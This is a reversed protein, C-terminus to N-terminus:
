ALSEAKSRVWGDEILEHTYDEPWIIRKAGRLWITIKGTNRKASDKVAQLFKERVEPKAMAKKTGESIAKSEDESRAQGKNWAPIGIRNQSIRLKSKDSHHKGHMGNAVGKRNIKAIIFDKNPHQSLKDGGNGGPSLNMCLTDTRILDWTVVKAEFLEAETRSEFYNIIERYHNEVGHKKISRRLYRGSGLYGDNEDITSHVGIYYKSTASCTTKYVFHKM